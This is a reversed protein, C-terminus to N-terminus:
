AQMYEASRALFKSTKQILWVGETETRGLVTGLDVLM